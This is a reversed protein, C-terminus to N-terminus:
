KFQNLAEGESKFPGKLGSSQHRFYANDLIYIKNESKFLSTFHGGDGAMLWEVGAKYGSRKLCYTTFTSYADCNGSKRKFVLKPSSDPMHNRGSIYYDYTFNNKEYYDILEPANLRDVVTDFDGWKKEHNKLQEDILGLGKYEKMGFKEPYKIAENIVEEPLVYPFIEEKLAQDICMEELKDAEEIKSHVGISEETTWGGIILTRLDYENIVQNCLSTNGDEVLWFLAQLPSCYKRVDPMGVQYMQEFAEDFKDPFRDYLEVIKELADREEASVGDQIEPLKRLETALLHNRQAIKDLGQIPGSYPINPKTPTACGAFALAVVILLIRRSIM